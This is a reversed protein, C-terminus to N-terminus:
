PVLRLSFSVNTTRATNGSGNRAQAKPFVPSSAHIAWSSSFRLRTQSIPKRVAPFGKAVVLRQSQRLFTALVAQKADPADVIVLDWCQANAGTPGWRGAEAIKLLTERPVQKGKEFRRVSRRKKIVEIFKDYTEWQADKGEM